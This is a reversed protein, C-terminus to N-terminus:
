DERVKKLKKDSRMDRGDPHRFTGPPLGLKEEVTGVTADSRIKRREKEAMAEVLSDLWLTTDARRSPYLGM